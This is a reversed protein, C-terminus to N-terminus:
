AFEGAAGLAQRLAQLAKARHSVRNKEPLTLEAATKVSGSPVFLSDYGFGQSGRPQFAIRGEWVGEAVLPKLDNPHRVYVLVCRFRANRHEAPFAKLVNLLKDNNAADTANAGAYRASYVGPAGGLADVELGSDDAIAPMGAAEAAFRAKLLANDRFTDGTEAASADTFEALPHLSVAHDKLLESLEVLKGRNGSALVISTVRGSM